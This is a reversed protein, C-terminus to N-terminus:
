SMYLRSYLREHQMAAIDFGTNCRGLMLLDPTITKTVLEKILLQSRFLIQQGELQGLPILKVANTVMGVAANYYFGTLANALKIGMISAYIGFVICYHGHAEKSAIAHEYLDILPSPYLPKFVKILRIGLKQSANKVQSPLKYTTCQEDLTLLADIDEDKTASFALSMFAADNFQLNVSLMNRVYEEATKMNNVKGSQVYTELGSSHAYGGIPLTPDSLHLLALM